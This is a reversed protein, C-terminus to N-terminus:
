LFFSSAIKSISLFVILMSCVPNSAIYKILLYPQTDIMLLKLIQWGISYLVDCGNCYFLIKCKILGGQKRDVHPPIIPLHLKFCGVMFNIYFGTFYECKLNVFFCKNMWLAKLWALYCLFTFSVWIKEKLKKKNINYFKKYIHVM